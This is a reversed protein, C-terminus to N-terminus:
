LSNTVGVHMCDCTHSIPRRALGDLRNFQIQLRPVAIASSGTSFRMFKRLHYLPMNSIMDNLYGSIRSEAKNMTDPFVLVNLVKSNSVSLCKYIACIGDLSKSLWFLAHTAPVGSHMLAIAAAPKTIFEFEAIEFLVKKLNDRKVMVRCGYRALTDSVKDQLDATFVTTSLADKLISREADSIFEIFAELMVNHTIETFPGCLLGVLCPLSIRTPFYGCALYGHSIVKGVIPLISRDTEPSIIPVLQCCGDFLKFYCKEWFASYVDRTVGGLDIAQEGESIPYATEIFRQEQYM